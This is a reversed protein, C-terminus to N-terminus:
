RIVSGAPEISALIAARDAAYDGTPTYAIQWTGIQESTLGHSRNLELRVLAVVATVRADADEARRGIVKVNGRWARAPNTGTALRYLLQGSESLEYDDAALTVAASSRDYEVVAVIEDAERSLPLRDGRLPAVRDAFTAPGMADDVADLAAALYTALAADSLSSTVFTRLRDVSFEAEVSVALLPLTVGVSTAM